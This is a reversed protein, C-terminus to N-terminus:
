RNTDDSSAARSLPQDNHAFVSAFPCGPCAHSGNDCDDAQAVTLGRKAATEFCAAYHAAEQGRIYSSWGMDSM